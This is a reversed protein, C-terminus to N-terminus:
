DFVDDIHVTVAVPELGTLDRVRNAVETRIRGGLAVLDTGYDAALTVEVATSRGSMGAVVRPGDDHADPDAVPHAQPSTGTAPTVGAEVLKGLAVRVGAIAQATERATVVVVRASIRTTGHPGPLTGYDPNAVASRIRRIAEDLISEPAHVETDAMERVPAWLREYEGLSAQCHPCSTQQPDHQAGRGAAVQDLLEDVEAGCALRDPGAGDGTRQDSPGPTM